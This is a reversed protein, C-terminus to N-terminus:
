KAEEKLLFPINMAELEQFVAKLTPDANEGQGLVATRLHSVVWRYYEPLEPAPNELLAPPFYCQGPTLEHGPEYTVEMVTYLFRGDRVVTEECIRYGQESLYRRLTPTKSQCQLVLRHGNKLWPAADLISIMVDAGIGACVLTDFERPINKCGDSLFFMMRETVGFKEANRRASELPQENIDSAIVTSAINNTLLYIGLYGHDCCIDAVRDGPAVFNCCARLRPSLPILM